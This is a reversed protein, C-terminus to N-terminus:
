IKIKIQNNFWHDEDYVWKNMDLYQKYRISNDSKFWAQYGNLKGHHHNAIFQINGNIYYWIQKGHRNGQKDKNEINNKM